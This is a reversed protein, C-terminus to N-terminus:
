NITIKEIPISIDLLFKENRQNYWEVAEHYNDREFNKITDILLKAFEDSEEAVKVYSPIDSIGRLAFSNVITNCGAGIANITKIQIGDGSFCTIVIVKSQRMFEEASEVFGLYCVNKYRERLWDAGMGAISITIDNPLLPYVKDFFWVLGRNSADWTWSGIMGIDWKKENNISPKPVIDSPICLIKLKEGAIHPFLQLFRNRNDETLLWLLESKESVKQELLKLLKAERKYLLRLFFKKEECVRKMYLDSEVNHSCAVIKVNQPIFDLLEGMQIHDIFVLSYNNECLFSKLLKIYKKTFYKQSTCSRRCLISKFINYLTYYISSKSEIHIRKVLHMYSPISGFITEVRLYGLVDVEYGLTLLKDIILQSVSEGGSRAKLPLITTIFLIKM